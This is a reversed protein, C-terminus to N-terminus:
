SKMRKLLAVNRKLERRSLMQHLMIECTEFDQGNEADALSRAALRLLNDNPADM